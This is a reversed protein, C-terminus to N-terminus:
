SKSVRASIDKTKQIVVVIPDFKKFVSTLVKEVIKKYSIEEGYVKMQNFLEIFRSFHDNVIENEKKMNDIKKQLISPECKKTKFRGCSKNCYRGSIKPKQLLFLEVFFLIM